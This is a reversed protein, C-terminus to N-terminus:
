GSRASAFRTISAIRAGLRRRADDLGEAGRKTEFAPSCMGTAIEPAIRSSSRPADLVARDAERLVQALDQVLVLERREALDRDAERVLDVVRERHDQVLGLQELAVDAREGALALARDLDLASSAIRRSIARM